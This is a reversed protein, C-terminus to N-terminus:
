LTNQDLIYLLVIDVSQKHMCVYTYPIIFAYKPKPHPKEGHKRHRHNELQVTTEDTWGRSTCRTPNLGTGGAIRM